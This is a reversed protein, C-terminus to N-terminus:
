SSLKRVTEIIHDVNAAPIVETPSNEQAILFSPYNEVVVDKSNHKLWSQTKEHQANIETIGVVGSEHIKDLVQKSEPHSEGLHVLIFMVRSM